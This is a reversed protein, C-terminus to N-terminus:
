VNETVVQFSVVCGTVRSRGYFFFLGVWLLQLLVVVGLSTLQTLGATLNPVAGDSPMLSLLVSLYAIAILAMWQYVSIRSHGRHDARLLESVARWGWTAVAPVIAAARWAEALFFALGM